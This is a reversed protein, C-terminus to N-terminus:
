CLEHPHDGGTRVSPGVLVATLNQLYSVVRILRAAEGELLPIKSQELRLRSLRIWGYFSNNEAFCFARLRFRPVPVDELCSGYAASRTRRNQSHLNPKEVHQVGQGDLVQRSRLLHAGRYPEFQKQWLPINFPERVVGPRAKGPSHESGPFAFELPSPNPFATFAEAKGPVSFGVIDTDTRCGEATDAFLASQSVRVQTRRCM